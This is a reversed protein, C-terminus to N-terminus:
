DALEGSDPRSLSGGPCTRLLLARGHPQPAQGCRRDLLGLQDLPASRGVHRVGEPRSVTERGFHSACIRAPRSCDTGLSSSLPRKPRQNITDSFARFLVEPLCKEPHPMFVDAIRHIVVQDSLLFTPRRSTSLLRSAYQCFWAWVSVFAILHKLSEM